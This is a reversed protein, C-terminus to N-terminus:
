KAGKSILFEIYERDAILIHVSLWEKLLKMLKLSNEKDKDQSLESMLASVKKTLLVHMNKHAFRGEWQYKEFLEEEHKFHQDVYVMLKQVTKISSDSTESNHFGEFLDSIIKVLVKHQSDISEIGVSLKDSWKFVEKIDSM